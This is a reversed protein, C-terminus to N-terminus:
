NMVVSIWWKILVDAEMQDKRVHQSHTQAWCTEGRPTCWLDHSAWVWWAVAQDNRNEVLFGCSEWKKKLRKWSAMGIKLCDMLGYVERPRILRWHIILLDNLHHTDRFIIDFHNWSDNQRFGRVYVGEYEQIQPSKWGNTWEVVLDCSKGDWRFSPWSPHFTLSKWLAVPNSYFRTFTSSQSWKHCLLVHNHM